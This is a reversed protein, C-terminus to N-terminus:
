IGVAVLLLKPVVGDASLRLQGNAVRLRCRTVACAGQRDVVKVGFCKACCCAPTKARACFKFAVFRVSRSAVIIKFPVGILHIERAVAEVVTVVVMLCSDLIM